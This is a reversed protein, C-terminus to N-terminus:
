KMGKPKLVKLRTITVELGTARTWMWWYSGKKMPGKLDKKLKGKEIMAKTAEKFAGVINAAKVKRNFLVVESDKHKIKVRFKWKM